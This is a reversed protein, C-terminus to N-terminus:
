NLFFFFFVGDLMFGGLHVTALFAGDGSSATNGWGSVSCPMGEFPCGSPLSIPAVSETVKVPNFLKILMIDHDLTQYDYSCTHVFSQIVSPILCRLWCMPESYFSISASIFYKKESLIGSSPILKWSSSLARLSACTTNEWCSRCPTPVSLLPQIRSFCESGSLQRM